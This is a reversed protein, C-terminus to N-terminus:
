ELPRKGIWVQLGGLLQIHLPMPPVNQLQALLGASTRALNKEQRHYRCMALRVEVNM